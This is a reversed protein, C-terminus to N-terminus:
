AKFRNEDFDRVIEGLLELSKLVQDEHPLPGFMMDKFDANYVSSLYPWVKKPNSFIHADVFRRNLWDKYSPGSVRTPYSM